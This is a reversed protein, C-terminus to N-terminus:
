CRNGIAQKGRNQNGKKGKGRIRPYHGMRVKERFGDANIILHKLREYMVSLWAPPRKALVMELTLNTQNGARGELLM